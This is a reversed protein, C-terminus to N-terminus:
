SSFAGKSVIRFMASFFYILEPDGAKGHSRAIQKSPQKLRGSVTGYHDGLHAAVEYLRYRHGYANRITQMPAMGDAQDSCGAQFM